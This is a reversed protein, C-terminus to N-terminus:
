AFPDGTTVSRLRVTTNTSAAFVASDTTADGVFNPAVGGVWNLGNGIDSNNGPTDWTLTAQARVPEAIISGFTAVVVTALVSISPLVDAHKQASKGDLVFHFTLM